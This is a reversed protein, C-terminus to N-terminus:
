KAVKSWNNKVYARALARKMGLVEVGYRIVAEEANEENTDVAAWIRARILDSKRAPKVEEVVGEEVAPEEVVGEEVAPEEVVGEEVAPEEVVGEEVAVEETNMEVENSQTTFEPELLEIIEEVAEATYNITEAKLLRIFERAENRTSMEESVVVGLGNVVVWRANQNKQVKLM